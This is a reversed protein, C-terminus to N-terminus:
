RGNIYMDLQSFSVVKTGEQPVRDNWESKAEKIIATRTLMDIGVVVGQGTSSYNWGFQQGKYSRIQAITYRM